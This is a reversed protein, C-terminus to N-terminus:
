LRPPLDAVRFMVQFFGFKKVKFDFEGGKEFLSGDDNQFRVKFWFESSSVTERAIVEKIQLCKLGNFECARRLLEQHDAPDVAPNLDVLYAYGGGHYKVAKDYRGINLFYFYRILVLEAMKFNTLSDVGEEAAIRRIDIPKQVYGLFGVVFCLATILFFAM